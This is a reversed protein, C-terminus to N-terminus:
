CQIHMTFVKFILAMFAIFRISSLSDPTMKLFASLSIFCQARGRFRWRVQLERCRCHRLTLTSLEAIISLNRAGCHWHYKLPVVFIHLFYESFHLTEYNKGPHRGRDELPQFNLVYEKSRRVNEVLLSMGRGWSWWWWWWWWWGGKKLKELKEVMLGGVGERTNSTTRTKRFMELSLLQISSGNRCANLGSVENSGFLCRSELGYPYGWIRWKLLTKGNIFWGNQPIVMKPFGWIWALM